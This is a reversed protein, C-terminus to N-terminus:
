IACNSLSVSMPMSFVNDLLDNAYCYQAVSVACVQSKYITLTRPSLVLWRHKWMWSTLGSDERVSHEGNLITQSNSQPAPESARRSRGSNYPLTPTDNLSTPSRPAESHRKHYVDTKAGEIAAPPPVTATLHHARLAESWQPPLGEFLLNLRVSV